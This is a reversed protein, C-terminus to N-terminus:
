ALQGLRGGSYGARLHDLCRAVTAALGQELSHRPQWGLETSIRAPDIAHRRDHGPRDSVRPILQADAAAAPRLEDLLRCITDVVERNRREGHGGVCYSELFTGPGDISRDVHSEAALAHTSTPCGVQGHDVPQEPRYPSSQNGNFVLDTSVQLLRGGRVALAAANVAHALEPESEVRDVATYSLEGDALDFDLDVREYAILEIGAPVQARLAQGLQGHPGTLLVRVLDREHSCM